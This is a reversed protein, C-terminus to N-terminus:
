IKSLAALPQSTDLPALHERRAPEPIRRGPLEKGEDGATLEDDLEGRLAHGLQDRAALSQDEVGAFSPRHPLPDPQARGVFSRAGGVHALCPLEHGTLFVPMSCRNLRTVRPTR